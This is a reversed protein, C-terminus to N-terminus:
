IEPAATVPPPPPPPPVASDVVSDSNYSTQVETPIPAEAAPYVATDAFQDWITQKGPQMVTYLSGLGLGLGVLAGVLSILWGLIPIAFIAAILGILTGAMKVVYRKVLTDQSATSGNAALIKVGMLQKGPSAANLVEAFMYGLIGAYSVIGAIWGHRLIVSVITFILVMAVADIISAVIRPVELGLRNQM